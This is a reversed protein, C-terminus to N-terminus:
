SNRMRNMQLHYDAIVKEHSENPSASVPGQLSPLLQIFSVHSESADGSFIYYDYLCRLLLSAPTGPTARTFLTLFFQLRM